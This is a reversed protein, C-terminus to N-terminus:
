QNIDVEVIMGDDLKVDVSQKLIHWNIVKGKGQKVKIESGLAPMKKISEQYIDAEFGLCCLFSGCPGSLREKGRHAIQQSQAQEISVKNFKKIFKTCCLSRGCPGIGGGIKLAQRSDVQILRITKQFHHTLDKLLDRFDIRKSAVFGFIIKGGDYSYRVGLLRMPLNYQTVFQQCEKLMENKKDKHLYIKKLDSTNAKRLVPKLQALLEESPQDNKELGAVMGIERGIQTAVVVQDGLHLNLDEANFHYVKDWPSFQIYALIM